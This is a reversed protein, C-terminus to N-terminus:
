YVAKILKFWAPNIRTEVVLGYNETAHIMKFPKLHTVISCHLSLPFEFVIIDGVAPELCIQKRPFHQDLFDLILGSDSYLHNKPKPLTPILTKLTLWVLSFCDVGKSYSGAIFPKGIHQRAALALAARDM